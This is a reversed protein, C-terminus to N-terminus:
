PQVEPEPDYKAKLREYTQREWEQAKLDAKARWEEREALEEATAPRTWKATGFTIGIKDLPVGPAIAALMEVFTAASMRGRMHAYGTRLDSDQSKWYFRPGDWETTKDPM